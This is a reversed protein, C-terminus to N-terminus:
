YNRPMAGPEGQPRRATAAPPRTWTRAPRPRGVYYLTIVCILNFMSIKPLAQCDFLIGIYYCM